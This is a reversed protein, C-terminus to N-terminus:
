KRVRKQEPLPLSKPGGDDVWAAYEKEWLDSYPVEKCSDFWPGGETYHIVAPIEQRNDFMPLKPSIGSIYNYRFPLSGIDEDDLWSFAHLDSGKMYNVAEKTLQQNAPHACNWLIFSSWNKRYYQSQLRNDMKVSNQPPNHNHKVCRIAYRDDCMAILQKIDSQFIMDCDMFLAWGKYGALTPVLFRTHSFQTSFPKSDILDRYDGNDGDILWPRKFIGQKRLDRHRVYQINIPTQTRRQISFSCIDAAIAERDDWGIFVKFGQSADANVAM